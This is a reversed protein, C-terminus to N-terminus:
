WDESFPAGPPPGGFQVCSSPAKTANLFGGPYRGELPEPPMFRLENVPPKAYPIGQYLQVNSNPCHHGYVTGAKLNVTPTCANATPNFALALAAASAALTRQSVM